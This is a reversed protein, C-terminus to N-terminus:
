YIAISLPLTNNNDHQDVAVRSKSTAIPLPSAEDISRMKAITRQAHRAFLM